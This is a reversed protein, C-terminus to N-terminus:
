FVTQDPYIVLGNDGIMLPFLKASHKTSRMKFIELARERVDGRRMNYLLIVGDVEFEEVTPNRKEPDPEQEAILIATCDWKKIAQFLDHTAKRKALQDTNLYSFSTLSDIVIRKIGLSEIIDRVSGGGVELVKEVQEPTYNLVNLKKDKIKKKLNWLTDFDEILEKETQEFSIYLAPEDYKEIGSILFQMAFTSKGSGPGGVVLTMSKKKLGGQMLEDLGPIGTPIRDKAIKPSGSSSKNLEASIAAKISAFDINKSDKLKKLSGKPREVAVKDEHLVVKHEEVDKSEQGKISSEIHEKISKPNFEKNKPVKKKVLKSAKKKPVKKEKEATERKSAKDLLGM